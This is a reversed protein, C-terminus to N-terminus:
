VIDHMGTLKAMQAATGIMVRKVKRVLPVHRDGLHAALKAIKGVTVNLTIKKEAPDGTYTPRVEARVRLPPLALCSLKLYGKISLM